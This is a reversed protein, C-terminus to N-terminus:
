SNAVGSRFHANIINAAHEHAVTDFHNGQVRVYGQAECWPVFGQGEFTAIKSQDIASIIAGIYEDPEQYWCSHLVENNDFLFVYPIDRSQLFSQILVMEKLTTSVGTYEWQGPGQYWHEEFGSGPQYTNLNTAAWGHETRFESRTTSTWSILVMDDQYDVYTLVKRAIKSNSTLPKAQSDYELGLQNAIIKPYPVITNNFAM